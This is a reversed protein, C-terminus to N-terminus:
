LSEKKTTESAINDKVVQEKVFNIANILPLLGQTPKNLDIINLAEAIKRPKDSANRGIGLAAELTPALIFILSDDGVSTKIRANLKQAENNEDQQKARETADSITDVPWQDEDHVVLIPIKLARCVGVILDIGGKGGCDVVAVAEADVDLGLREAVAMAAIRDGYGEILLARRAFLVENRSTDFKNSLKFSDKAKQLLQIDQASVYSVETFKGTERRVLRLSEFRNVDAFVPSHTSYIIQCQGKASMECLLRYFYRQAQPHLYMEPEEIAITGFTGGLQRFAEFIGVVMASQIGLGLDEGPVTLGEERYRLRLSNFPNTPDSFDFGIQISKSVKSGLFGLMRKTTDEVSKEIKKVQDTRLLDMAQDYLKKFDDEAKFEKRAQQLLRGLISGRMAPLHQSLSRRHDIFLVRAHERLDSGVRFRDFQPRKGGSQPPTVAVLPIENNENLAEVDVHLDGADGWKGSKKYPRCTVRIAKVAHDKSVADRHLYPPDFTVTIAIERSAEFKTFDQPIRFSRLSPWVDGLV